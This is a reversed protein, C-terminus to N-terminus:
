KQQNNRKSILSCDIKTNQKKKNMKKGQTRKNVNVYM